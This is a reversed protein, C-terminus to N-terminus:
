GGTTEETTGLLGLRVADLAAAWAHDFDMAEEDPTHVPPPALRHDLVDIVDAIHARVSDAVEEHLHSLDPWSAARIANAIVEALPDEAVM